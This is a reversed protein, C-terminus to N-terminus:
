RGSLLRKSKCKSHKLGNRRGCLSAASVGRASRGAIRVPPAAGQTSLPAWPRLHPPVTRALTQVIGPACRPHLCARRDCTSSRCTSGANHSAIRGRHATSEGRHATSEGRVGPTRRSRIGRAWRTLSDRLWGACRDGAANTGHRVSQSGTQVHLPSRPGERVSVPPPPRLRRAPRM